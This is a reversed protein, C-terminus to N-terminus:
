QYKYRHWSACTTGYFETSTRGKQQLVGTICTYTTPEIRQGTYCTYGVEHYISESRPINGIGIPPEQLENIVMSM